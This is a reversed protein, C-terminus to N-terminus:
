ASGKAAALLRPDLRLALLDTATNVIMFVTVYMLVLIQVVAFDKAGVAQVLLSGVGNVGFASEVVVESAMLGVFSVSAATLMSPAANRLIHGRVTQSTTLGGATATDVYERRREQRVSSRTLRAMYAISSVALATAPLIVHQLHGDFGDGAGSVPFWGLTVGFVYILVSAAAFSPVGVGVTTLVTLGSDVAGGRLASILGVISGIIVTEVTAVLVLLGTVALRPQILSWASENYVLSTGFDGHFLGTLWHWYRPIFAENLHYEATIRAVTQTTGSGHILYAIPGGPVLYLAGFVVLSTVFLTLVLEAVRRTAITLM